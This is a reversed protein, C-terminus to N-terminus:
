KRHTQSELGDICYRLADRLTRMTKARNLDVGISVLTQAIRPAIGTLVCEAGLLKVSDVVVLIKSAMSTDLVAVGTLDLIVYEAGRAAVESLLREAIESARVDDIEGILPLCLVRNWVDIVPASLKSITARQESIVHVQSALEDRAKESEALAQELTTRSLALEDIFLAMVGELLGLEDSEDPEIVAGPTDFRGFSACSFATLLRRLRARDIVIKTEDAPPSTFASM